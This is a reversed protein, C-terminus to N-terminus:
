LMLGLSVNAYPFIDNGYRRKISIEESENHDMFVFDLVESKFISPGFGLNINFGNHWIWQYGVSPSFGYVKAFSNGSIISYHNYSDDLFERNLKGEIAGYSLMFRFYFNNAEMRDVYVTSVLSASLYRTKVLESSDHHQERISLSFNEHDSYTGLGKGAVSLGISINKYIKIEAGGDFDIKDLRVPSLKLNISQAKFHGDKIHQKRAGEPSAQRFGEIPEPTQNPEMTEDQIPAALQHKAKDPGHLKSQNTQVDILEEQPLAIGEPKLPIQHDINQYEREKKESFFEYEPQDALNRAYSQSSLVLSSLLALHYHNM